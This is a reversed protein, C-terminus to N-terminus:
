AMVEQLLALLGTLLPLCLALVAAKCFFAVGGALAGQGAEKCIEEAFRCLLCIGLAKYLITLVSSSLGAGALLEQALTLPESLMGVAAILVGAASCVGLLLATEPRREKLAVATIAAAVAFLAIGVASM